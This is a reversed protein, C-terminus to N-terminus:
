KLLECRLQGGEPRPERDPSTLQCTPGKGVGHSLLELPCAQDRPNGGQSGAGHM